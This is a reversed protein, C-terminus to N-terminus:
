GDDAEGRRGHKWYGRISTHARPFGRDGVLLRRVRQVAAAEGAVWVRTGEAPEARVIADVLADGPPAGAALDHWALTAGTHPPLPIRGDPRAVEVHVDVPTDDPITELLQSIAPLATEDGGLLFAPAHPDVTYGRGPGSVAVADGPSVARAWDSAAGEDHLVVEVDLEPADPDARRPTLTRIVPRRGDPLLFENGNWTPLVLRGDDPLLLRVSAAPEDVGFGTLEPGTLTVRVLRPGVPEARAVAARRFRPPPRRVRRPANTRNPDQTV